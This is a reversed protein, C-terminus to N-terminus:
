RLVEDMSVVKVPGFNADRIPQEIKSLDGVVVVTFRDSAIYQKSARELETATVAEIRPVYEGFFSDELGYVFLETLKGAMNSTTEFEGPFGLALLNRVKNLEDVPPPTRMGDVEKFFETLSEVTKDTQVGAAAYFPGATARMDFASGAGYTYGHEERLNQNLRSTFSGGLMTNLVDLIYYDPTMRPVGVGGMRIQSQAAGPKDILYIQRAASQPVPPLTPKAIAAGNKWSGFAQQLKPLVSQPTIDGVVIIGANQPQYNATYFARMDEASIGSNSSETGMTLTGYRHGAGYVLRAFAAAAVSAPNDRAQLLAALREKRIRDIENQAFTPRLVVDALLPLAQDLKSAPTHLNVLSSDFSSGTTLSAGLFEVADALDLANYKGAGEDLMAATFSALGYKGTPDAAAGSTVVLSVDVVPVEHMQVIWVRLGNTLTRREIPPIKLAPAQGPSPAKSRDPAQEAGAPVALAVTILLVVVLKM